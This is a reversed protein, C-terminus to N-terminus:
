SHNHSHSPNSSFIDNLRQIDKETDIGQDQDSFYIMIKFYNFIKLHDDENLEQLMEKLKNMLYFNPHTEYDSYKHELFFRENEQFIHFRHLDTNMHTRFFNLYARANVHLIDLSAEFREIDKDKRKYVKQIESGLQRLNDNFKRLPSNTLSM